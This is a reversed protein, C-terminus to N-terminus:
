HKNDAFSGANMDVEGGSTVNIPGTVTSAGSFSVVTGAPGTYTVAGTGTIAYIIANNTGTFNFALTGNDVITGSGLSLAGGVFTLTGNGLSLTAGPDITTGGSYGGLGNMIVTGAGTVTVGGTSSGAINGITLVDNSQDARLVLSNSSNTTVFASNGSIFGSGGGTKLISQVTLITSIGQTVGFAGSINLTNIAAAGQNSINGTM